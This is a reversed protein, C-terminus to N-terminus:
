GVSPDWAPLIRVRERWVGTGQRIPKHIEVRAILARLLNRQELVTLDDWDADLNMALERPDIEIRPTPAARVRREKLADLDADLQTVAADYASDPMNGAAWRVTIRGLRDTLDAIKRDLTAVNDLQIVRREREQAVAAALQDVDHALDSVWERVAQEVLARTMYMGHRAGRQASNSCKYDKLGQNGVHMPAGCDGCFILGTLPYKPEIVQPPAPAALRLAVYAEWEGPTIVPDHAGDHFTATSINWDRGGDKKHGRHIIKGGGFGADLLHTVTVRSWQAGSKTTIGDRNLWRTIRTFGESRLYRSYMEALVPAEAANQAYTGDDLKDYGYRPGGDAPLGMRRRRAHAEKWTEGILEAQYANMEGLMGRAFRGSPTADVAETASEIAGGAVDARDLAIAWRLRQRGVRSFKWVVLVECEGAELRELGGDLKPWWASSRRSGSYKSEEVGEIWDVIRYGRSACHTEIAYRQVEPSTGGDKEMSVRIMGIARKPAVSDTRAISM